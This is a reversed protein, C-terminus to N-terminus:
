PEGPKTAHIVTTASRTSSARRCPHGDHPPGAGAAGSMQRFCGPRPSTSGPLARAATAAVRRRRACSGAASAYGDGVPPLREGVRVPLPLVVEPVVACQVIRRRGRGGRSSPDIWADVHVAAASACNKPWQGTAASPPRRGPGRGSDPLARGYAHGGRGFAAIFSGAGRGPARSNVMPSTVKASRTSVAAARTGGSRSDRCTRAERRQVGLEAVCPEGLRGTTVMTPLRRTGPYRM